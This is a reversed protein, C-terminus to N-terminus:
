CNIFMESLPTALGEVVERGIQSASAVPLRRILVKGAGSNRERLQFRCQSRESLAIYTKSRFTLAPRTDSLTEAEGPEFEIADDLDAIYLGEKAVEGLLYYKWITERARFSVFYTKPTAPLLESILGAEDETIRINVVIIPRILRDTPSLVDEFVPSDLNEFDADSLHDEQHLRFKPNDANGDGEVNLNDVFLIADERFTPPETYNMFLSDRTFVKFVLSFPEESDAAQARLSDINDRDYFVRVGNFTNRTLLGTKNIIMDTEHTAACHLQRCFGDSFFSHQAEVSFLPLYHGM